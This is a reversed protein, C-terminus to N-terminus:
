LSLICLVFGMEGKYEIKIMFLYRRKNIKVLFRLCNKFHRTKRWEDALIRKALKRRDNKVTIKKDIVAFRKEPM